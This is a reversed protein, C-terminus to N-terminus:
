TKEKEIKELNQVSVEPTVKLRTSVSSRTLKHPFMQIM